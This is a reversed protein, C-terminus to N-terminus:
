NRAKQISEPVPVIVYPNYTNTEKITLDLVVQGGVKHTIKAPFLIDSKYNSPNLDAYGSYTAELMTAGRRVEVKAPRNEADVTMRVSLGTLGGIVVKTSPGPHAPGTLTYTIVVVGNEVTVKPDKAVRAAKIAGFPTMWMRLLRDDVADRAPVASGVTPDLGGGAEGMENWAFTDSVVEIRRELKEGDTRTLDVRMGPYDFAISGRYNTVTFSRGGENMTGAGIYEVTMLADREQVDRLIGVADAVTHLVRQVDVAQGSSQSHASSTGLTLAM